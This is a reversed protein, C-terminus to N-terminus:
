IIVSIFIESFDNKLYESLLFFNIFILYLTFHGICILTVLRLELVYEYTYSISYVTYIRTYVLINRMYVVRM